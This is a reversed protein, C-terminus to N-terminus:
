RGAQFPNEGSTTARKGRPLHLFIWIFTGIGVLLHLIWVGVLGTISLMRAAYSTLGLLLILFGPVLSCTALKLLTPFSVPRNSYFACLLGAIALGCGAMWWSAITAVATGFVISLYGMGKWARWAPRMEDSSLNIEWERPYPIDLIGFLSEAEIHDDTLSVAFDSTRSGSDEGKPDLSMSLFLNEALRVPEAPGDHLIGGSIRGQLRSNDAAEEIVPNCSRHLLTIFFVGFLVALIAEAVLYM